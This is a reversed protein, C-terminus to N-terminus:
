GEVWDKKSSDRVVKGLPGFLVRGGRGCDQRQNTVATM